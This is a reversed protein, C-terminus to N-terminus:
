KFTELGFPQVGWIQSFHKDQTILTKKNEWVCQAIYLDILPPQIKRLGVRFALEAVRDWSTSIIPFDSFAMKLRRFDQRTRCGRLVEAEIVDVLCIENRDILPQAMKM